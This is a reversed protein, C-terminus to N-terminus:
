FFKLAKKSLFGCLIGLLIGALVDSPYHVYLYLRSFAILSALIMAPIGLRKNEMLLVSAAAFSSLAHGSPFSFDKPSPILLNTFGNAEFPRIRGVLPKLIFNGIILSLVLAITLTLATKRYKKFCFLVLTIVIWLIGKNGLATILPMLADLFDSRFVEQIWDLILHDLALMM